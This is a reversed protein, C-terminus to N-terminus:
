KKEKKKRWRKKGGHQSVSWLLSDGGGTEGRERTTLLSLDPVLGPFFSISRKFPFNNLHEEKKPNPSIIRKGSTQCIYFFRIEAILFRFCCCCCPSKEFSWLLHKKTYTNKRWDGRCRSIGLFGSLRKFIFYPGYNAGRNRRPAQWEIGKNNPDWKRDNLDTEIKSEPFLLHAHRLLNQPLFLAKTKMKIEKPRFRPGKAMFM